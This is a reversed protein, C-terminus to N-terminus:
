FNYRAGLGSQFWMALPNDFVEVFVNIDLFLSIPADEFTYELGIIGDAGVDLDTVNDTGDCHWHSDWDFPDPDHDHDWCYDYTISIFRIQGGVGFYWQLGQLDELGEIDSVNKQFLYHVQIAIPSKVKHSNYSYGKFDDFDDFRNGYRNNNWWGTRGVNLELATKDDLKKKLTIGAPDGLRLGIGWNYNIQAAVPNIASVSILIAFFILKKM